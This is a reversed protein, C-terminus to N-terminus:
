CIFLHILLKNDKNNEKTISISVLKMGIKNVLAEVYICKVASMVNDIAEDISTSM